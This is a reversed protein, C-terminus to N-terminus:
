NAKLFRRYRSMDVDEYGNGETFKKAITADWWSDAPIGFDIRLPVRCIPNSQIAHRIDYLLHYDDPHMSLNYEDHINLLLQSQRGDLIQGIQIINWKNADASSGQYLLGAMKRGWGKYLCRLHRGMTSRVYGRDLAVNKARKTMERIGPVMAHYDDIIKQGEEGPAYYTIKRDGEMFHKEITPLGMTNCLTGEGYNFVMALNMQKANAMGTKEDRDRPLGTLNAVETHFDADPDEILKQMMSKAQVYHLFWRLEHQELDGYCWKQGEDPMFVPRVMAAVERDRNPIQQMAPMTYSLRGTGTGGDEGKVQNINPYVRGKYHKELVHKDLFTGAAKNFKRCKLIEAAVPDTMSQLADATISAKGGATAELITGDRAVWKGDPREKVDFLKKISDSPNPNVEFGAERSIKENLQKSRKKLMDSTREAMVEDVPIGHREMTFIYPFLEQEFADVKHLGQREIEKEQWEFLKYALETDRIAYPRIIDIPARHFNPAQASRTAAGGFLEALHEYIDDVKQWNLNRKACSDLDYTRHHEHILNARISTCHCAAPDIMVNFNWLHHLDFKMNHNVVKKLRPAQDRIWDLANKQERIDYYYSSEPTTVAFSFMRERKWDLGTTETDIAVYDYQTLDPFNM